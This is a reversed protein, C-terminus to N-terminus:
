VAALGREEMLKRLSSRRIGTELRLQVRGSLVAESADRFCGLVAARQGVGKLEHAEAAEM